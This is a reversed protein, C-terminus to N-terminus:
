LPITLKPGIDKVPKAFDIDESREDDNKSRNQNSNKIKQEKERGREQNALVRDM